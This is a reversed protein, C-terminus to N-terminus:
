PSPQKNSRIHHENNRYRKGMESGYEALSYLQEVVDEAHITGRKASSFGAETLTAATCIANWMDLSKERAQIEDKKHNQAAYSFAISYIEHAKNALAQTLSPLEASYQTQLNQFFGVAETAAASHKKSYLYASMGYAKTPEACEPHTLHRYTEEVAEALLIDNINERFSFPRLPEQHDPYLNMSLM